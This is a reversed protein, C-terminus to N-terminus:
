HLLLMSHCRDARVPSSIGSIPPVTLLSAMLLYIWLILLSPLPPRLAPPLHHHQLAARNRASRPAEKNKRTLRGFVVATLQAYDQVVILVSVSNYLPPQQCLTSASLGQQLEQYLFGSQGEVTM